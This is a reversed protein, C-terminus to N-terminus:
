SQQLLTRAPGQDYQAEIDAVDFLIKGNELAYQRKQNNFDMAAQTGISRALSSTWFIFLKDPHQDIYAEPYYIDYREASDAFFGTNPDSIDSGEATPDM